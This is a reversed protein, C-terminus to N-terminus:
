TLGIQAGFWSAIVLAALPVIVANALEVKWYSNLRKILRNRDVGQSTM